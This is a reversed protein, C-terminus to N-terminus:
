RLTRICRGIDLSRLRIRPSVATLANMSATTRPSIKFPHDEDGKRERSTINMAIHEPCIIRKVLGYLELAAGGIM